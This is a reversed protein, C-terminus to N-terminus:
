SGSATAQPMTADRLHGRLFSLSHFRDQTEAGPVSCKSTFFLWCDDCALGCTFRARLAPHFADKIVGKWIFKEKAMQIYPSIIILADRLLTQYKWIDDRRTEHASTSQELMKILLTVRIISKNEAQKESHHMTDFSLCNLFCNATSWCHCLASTYDSPTLWYM